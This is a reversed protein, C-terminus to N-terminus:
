AERWDSGVQLKLPFEKTDGSQSAVLLVRGLYAAVLECVWEPHNGVAKEVAFWFYNGERVPYLMSDFVGKEVLALVFDFFARSAVIDSRAFLDVLRKNWLESSGVFQSM